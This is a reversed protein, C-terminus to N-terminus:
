PSNQKARFVQLQQMARQYAVNQPDLTLATKLSEFARDYQQNIAYTQALLEHDAANGRLSVARQALEVTRPFEKRLHILIRVMTEMGGVSDPALKLVKELSDKAGQWNGAQALLQAYTFHCGAVDPNAACMAAGRELAVKLNGQERYSKLLLDWADTNTEDLVVAKELVEQAIAVFSGALYIRAAQTYRDAYDRCEDAFVEAQPRNGQDEANREEQQAKLIAKAEERKGLRMLAKGLGEKARLVDSQLELTKEFAKKAAEYEKNQLYAQGLLLFTETSDPHADSYRKLVGIAKKVEGLKLYVDSLDHAAEALGPLMRRALLLQELAQDFDAQMLAITGLGHNAYGYQPNLKLAAEWVQQAQETEGLLLHIRAKIELADASKEFRSTLDDALGKAEDRLETGSEPMEKAIGPGTQGQLRGCIVLM